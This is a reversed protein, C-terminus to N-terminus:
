SDIGLLKNRLGVPLKDYEDESIHELRDDTMTGAPDGANGSLTALDPPAGAAKELAKLRAQAQPSLPQQQQNQQQAQAGPLKIGAAKAKEGILAPGYQDCLVAIEKRLQYRAVDTGNLQIGKAALNDRAIGTIYDWERDSGQLDTFVQVWPHDTELKATLQDLYLTDGSQPQQPQQQAAPKLKEALVEERIAQEKNQLEREQKKFEAFSLQGDDLQAALADIATHVEALRQEATPKPPDQTQQQGNNAPQRTELAKTVGTLFANHERQKALESLVQDLREKPVMIGKAQQQQQQGNPQPDTPAAQHTGTAPDKVGGEDTPQQGDKSAAEEAEAKALMEQLRADEEDQFPQPDTSPQQGPQAGHDQPQNGNPNNADIVPQQGNDDPLTATSGNSM